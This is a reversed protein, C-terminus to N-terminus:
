LSDLKYENAREDSCTECFVYDSYNLATRKGTLHNVMELNQPRWQKNEYQKFNKSALTKTHLGDLNYFETKVILYRDVDVWSVKRSYGTGVYKPIIEVVFVAKGDFETQELFKYSFKEIPYSSIDEFSFESGVFAASKKSSSIQKTRNFNPLYLWQKDEETSSTKTLLSIGEEKKPEQFVILSKDHDGLEYDEFSMARRKVSGKKNFLQMEVSATSSGYGSSVQDVKEIITFGREEATATSKAEAQAYAPTLLQSIVVAGLLAGLGLKVAMKKTKRNFMWVEKQKMKIESRIIGLQEPYLWEDLM